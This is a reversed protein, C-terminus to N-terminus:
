KAKKKKARTSVRKQPPKDKKEEGSRPPVDIYNHYNNIKATPGLGGGQRVNRAKGISGGGRKKKLVM